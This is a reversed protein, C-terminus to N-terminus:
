TFQENVLTMKKLATTNIEFGLGPGNPVNIYGNIMEIGSTLQDRIANETQDYEMLFDPAILRGPICELNAIFHTAVHLAIGSGWTHPIISVGHTSALSAIRKAETLGGCACIDPQVIDVSNNQLLQNFGFRLYECEGSAIPITTQQRLDYSQGYYEPSLPEEFWSIQLPELRHALALAERYNYAHNSDVMLQIDSGVIDRIRSVIKYDTDIGLGVKMKMAKFGNAVYKKAEEEFGDFPTELNSFYFGTAYPMIEKRQVGGLLVSVPCGLIKGKLDWVAIDIASVSAMLVGRRAFDLSVRYMKSWILENELPSNNLVIPALYKIGSAVIEAPGYGEGWGIEGSSSTIKVVCIKRSEYAWQSFYFRKSLKEELVFTEIKEIYM